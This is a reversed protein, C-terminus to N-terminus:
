GGDPVVNAPIHNQQMRARAADAAERTAFPGSRVRYRASGGSEALSISSSFGLSKLQAEVQRANGIDAYSGAQVAWRPAKAAANTSPAAVPPPTVASKPLATTPVSPAPHTSVVPKSPAPKAAPKSETPTPPKPKGGASAPPPTHQSIPQRIQAAPKPPAPAPRSPEPKSPVPEESTATEANPAAAIDDDEQVPLSDVDPSTATERSLGSFRAAAAEASEAIAKRQAPTSPGPPQSSAPVPEAQAETNDSATPSAPKPTAIPRTDDVAIEIRRMGPEAPKPDSPAPLLLSAIFLMLLMVGAGLLRRLLVANM